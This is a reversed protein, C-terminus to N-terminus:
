EYAEGLIWMSFPESESNLTKLEEFDDINYENASLNCISVTDKKELGVLLAGISLLKSTLIGIVFICGNLIDMTDEYSSISNILLQYLEFPNREHGYLVNQREIMYKIRLDKHYETLIDETRRPNKSPFPIVPSTDDPNVDNYIKQLAIAKNEGLLPYFIKIKSQNSQKDIASRFGYMYSINDDFSFEKIKKDIEVNESVLVFLNINSNKKTKYYLANILPFYLGRPIASIDVIIDTFKEINEKSIEKAFSFGVNEKNESNIVYKITKYEINTGMSILDEFNKFNQNVYTLYREENLNPYDIIICELKINFEANVILSLINNMRVDFGKGIIFLVNRQFDSNFHKRWFDMLDKEGQHFVYPNWNLKNM